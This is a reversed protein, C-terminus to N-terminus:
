LAAQVVTSLVDKLGKLGGGAARVDEKSLSENPQAMTLSREHERFLEGRNGRHGSRHWGGGGSGVM